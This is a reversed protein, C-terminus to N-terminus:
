LSLRLQALATLHNPATLKVDVAAWHTHNDTTHQQTPLTAGDSTSTRHLPRHWLSGSKIKHHQLSLKFFARGIEISNSWQQQLSLAPAHRINFHHIQPCHYYSRSLPAGGRRPLRTRAEYFRFFGLMHDARHASFYQGM